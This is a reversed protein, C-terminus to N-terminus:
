QTKRRKRNRCSSVRKRMTCSKSVKLKIRLSGKLIICRPLGDILNSLEQMTFEYMTSTVTHFFVYM